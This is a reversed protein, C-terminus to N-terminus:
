ISIKAGVQIIRLSPVMIDRIFSTEPDYRNYETITFLNQAQVYLKFSSIKKNLKLVDKVECGLSINKLRLFSSNTISYNSTLFNSLYQQPLASPAPLNGVSQNKWYDFTSWSNMQGMMSLNNFISYGKQEVYHFLFALDFSKFTLMNHIGVNIKPLSSGVFIKDGGMGNYSSFNNRIVGDNNVDAFSPIGNQRNLGNYLLTQYNDLPYGVIFENAYASNNINPFSKLINKPLFANIQTTWKFNKKHYNITNLEFEWGRNRVVAPVNALYSEFGTMYPLQQQLLQDTSLNNYWAVSLFMRDRLFGLELGVEFKRNLEWRYDPNAPSSPVSAPQGGYGLISTYTSVFGYDGIADNGTTGYSVRLKGFSLFPLRENMWHENSFIWAGAISYFNGFQRGPGFRSSGDRRLTGNIVYKNAIRYTARGFFSVYKYHTYASDSFFINGNTIDELLDDNEFNNALMFEGDRLNHQYTAGLLLDIKGSPVVKSYNLQPEIIYNHVLQNGFASIGKPIIGGFPRQAKSPYPKVEDINVHNYGLFGKLLLNNVLKYSLSSTINFNNAGAKYYSELEAVYNMRDNTWFYDGSETYVPFHPPTMFIQSIGGTTTGSLLTRDFTGFLNSIVNFRKNKSDYRYSGHVNGRKYKTQGPLVTTEEHYTGSLLFKHHDNGFSLNLSGKSTEATGGMYWRQWDTYATTDWEVLDPANAANVELGSNQLEDRRLQLYQSTNFMESFRSVKGWGKNVNLSVRLQNDKATKTTILIVGNSARSGYIATADADKLIDISEINDPNILNLPSGYNLSGDGNPGGIIQIPNSSFPVGDVVFLPTNVTAISSRGRIQVNVPAGPLGNSQTVILGPVRGQLALLPNTVPQIEITKYSVTNTNGTSYRKTTTGYGIIQVKDLEKATTDLTAVDTIVTSPPPSFPKATIVIVKENLTYRVPQNKFIIDLAKTLPVNKVNISVRKSKQLLDTNSYFYYQTQNYIELLVDQLAANKKKITVTQTYAPATIFLGIILILRGLRHRAM